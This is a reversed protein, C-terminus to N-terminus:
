PRRDQTGGWSRRGTAPRNLAYEKVRTIAKKIAKRGERAATKANSRGRQAELEQLDIMSADHASKLQRQKFFNEETRGGPANLVELLADLAAGARDRATIAQVIHDTHCIDLTLAQQYLFALRRSSSSVVTTPTKLWFTSVTM